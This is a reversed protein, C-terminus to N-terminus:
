KSRDATEDTQNMKTFGDRIDSLYAMCHSRWVVLNRGANVVAPGTDLGNDNSTM